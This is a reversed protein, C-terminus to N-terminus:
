LSCALRSVLRMAFGSAACRVRAGCARALRRVGCNKRAEFSNSISGTVVEKEPGDIEIGGVRRRSPAAVFPGCGSVAKPAKGLGTGLGRCAWQSFGGSLGRPKTAGFRLRLVALNLGCVSGCGEFRVAKQSVTLSDGFRVRAALIPARVAFRM